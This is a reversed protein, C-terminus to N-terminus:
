SEYLVKKLFANSHEVLSIFQPQSCMKGAPFLLERHILEHEKHISRYHSEQNM